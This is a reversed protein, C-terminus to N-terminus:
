VHTMNDLKYLGSGGIVGVLVPKEASTESAMKIFNQIRRYTRTGTARTISMVVTNMCLRDRCFDGVSRCAVVLRHDDRSLQAPPVARDSESTRDILWTEDYFSPLSLDDNYRALRQLLM